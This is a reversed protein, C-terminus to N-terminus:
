KKTIKCKKNRKKLWDAYNMGSIRFFLLQYDNWSVQYKALIVSNLISWRDRNEYAKIENLTKDVDFYKQIFLMAALSIRDAIDMDAIRKCFNKNEEHRYLPLM